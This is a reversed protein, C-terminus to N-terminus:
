GDGALKGSRLSAGTTLAAAGRASARRPRTIEMPRGSVFWGSTLQVLFRDTEATKCFAGQTKSFYVRV